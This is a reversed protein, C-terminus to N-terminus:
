KENFDLLRSAPVESSSFYENKYNRAKIKRLILFTESL